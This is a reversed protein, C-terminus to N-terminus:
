FIECSKKKEKKNNSYEKFEETELFNHLIYANVMKKIEKEASDFINLSVEGNKFEDITKNTVSTPINIQWPSGINIYKEIIQQAEYNITKEDKISKFRRIDQLFLIIELDSKQILYNRFLQCVTEDDLIANINRFKKKDTSEEKEGEM